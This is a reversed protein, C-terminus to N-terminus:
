VMRVWSYVEQTHNIDWQFWCLLTQKRLPLAEATIELAWVCWLGPVVTRGWWHLYFWVCINICILLSLDTLFWKDEPGLTSKCLAGRLVNRPPLQTLCAGSCLYICGFSNTRRSETRTGSSWIGQSHWLGLSFQAGFGRASTKIWGRVVRGRLGLPQLLQDSNLLFHLYSSMEPQISKKRQLDWLGHSQNQM